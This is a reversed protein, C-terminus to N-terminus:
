PPSPRLHQQQADSAANATLLHQVATFNSVIITNEVTGAYWQVNPLFLIAWIFKRIKKQLLTLAYLGPPVLPMCPPIAIIEM